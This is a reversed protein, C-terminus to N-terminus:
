SIGFQEKLGRRGWRGAQNVVFLRSRQVDLQLTKIAIPKRLRPTQGCCGESGTARWCSVTTSRATNKNSGFHTIGEQASRLILVSKTRVSYKSKHM